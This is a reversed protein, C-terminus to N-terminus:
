APGPRPASAAGGTPSCATLPCRAPTPLRCVAARSAANTCVRSYSIVSVRAYTAGV